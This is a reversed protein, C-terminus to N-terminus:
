PSAYLRSVHHIQRNRIRNRIEVAGAPVGGWSVRVCELSEFAAVLLGSGPGDVYWRIFLLELRYRVFYTQSQARVGTTAFKHFKYTQTDRVIERAM